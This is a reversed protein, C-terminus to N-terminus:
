LYTGETLPFLKSMRERAERLRDLEGMTKLLEILQTHLDYAYPNQSLQLYV